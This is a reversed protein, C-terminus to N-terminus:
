KSKEEFRFYPGWDEFYQPRHYEVEWGNQRYKEEFDLFHNDYLYNRGTDKKLEGSEIGIKLALDAIKSQGIEFGGDEYNETILQNVAQFVYDPIAAIRKEVHEKKAEDPTIPAVAM